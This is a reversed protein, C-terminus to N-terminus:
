AITYPAIRSRGPDFWCQFESQKQGFTATRIPLHAIGYPLHRYETSSSSSDRVARQAVSYLE